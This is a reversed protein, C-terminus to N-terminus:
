VTWKHPIRAIGVDGTPSIMEFSCAERYYDVPIGDGSEIAFDLLYEGPLLNVESLVLETRGNETLRLSPLKDIHTNTGYCQVGDRNFIGIGFVADEVPESVTYDLTIHVAEGTRFVRQPRGAANCLRISRIRAKGNGWRKKVEAQPEEAPAEETPSAEEQVTKAAEQAALARETSEQLKQGMFDLYELDIEKPPGEARIKGEHIWISRECIQEIQGLSHSVIVITTGKAKIEKLKNFCKAQFNADGVGLIEDILLIDADVNIAVSFALRMYM